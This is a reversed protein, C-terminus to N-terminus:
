QHLLVRPFNETGAYIDNSAYTASKILANDKYLNMTIITNTALNKNVTGMLSGSFQVNATYAYSLTTTASWPLTPNTVINFLKIGTYSVDVDLSTM